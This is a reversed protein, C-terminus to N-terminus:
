VIVETDDHCPACVAGRPLDPEIADVALIVVVEEGCLMCPITLAMDLMELVSIESTIVKPIEVGVKALVAEATRLEALRNRQMGLQDAGNIDYKQWTM